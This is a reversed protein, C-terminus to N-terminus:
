YTSRKTEVSKQCDTSSCWETQRNAAATLRRIRLHQLVIYCDDAATAVELVTPLTEQSVSDEGYVSSLRELVVLTGRYLLQQRVQM